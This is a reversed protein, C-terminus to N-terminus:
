QTEEVAIRKGNGFFFFIDRGRVEGELGRGFVGDEKPLCNRDVRRVGPLMLNVSDRALLEM